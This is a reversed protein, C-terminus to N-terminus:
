KHLFIHLVSENFVSKYVIYEVNVKITKDEFIMLNGDATGVLLFHSQKSFPFIGFNNCFLM